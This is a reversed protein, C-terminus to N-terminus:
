PQEYMAWVGSGNVQTSQALIDSQQGCHPRYGAEGAAQAIDWSLLSNQLRESRHHTSGTLLQALLELEKLL